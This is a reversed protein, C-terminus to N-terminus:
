SKQERTKYTRSIFRTLPKVSNERNTVREEPMLLCQVLSSGRDEGRNLCMEPSPVGRRM